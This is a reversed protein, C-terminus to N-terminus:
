QVMRILYKLGSWHGLYFIRNSQMMVREEGFHTHSRSWLSHPTITASFRDLDLHFTENCFLRLKLSLMKCNLIGCFFWKWTLKQEWPFSEATDEPDIITHLYLRFFYCSILVMVSKLIFCVSDAYVVKKNLCPQQVPSFWKQTFMHCHLFVYETFQHKFLQILYYYELCVCNYRYIRGTWGWLCVFLNDVLM